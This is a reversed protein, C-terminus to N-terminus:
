DNLIAGLLLGAAFPEFHWHPCHPGHVHGRAIFGLGPFYFGISNYYYHHGNYYRHRYEPHRGYHYDHWYGPGPRNYYRTNDHRRERGSYRPQQHHRDREHRPQNQRNSHRDGGDNRRGSSSDHRGKEGHEGRAVKIVTAQKKVGVPEGRADAAGNAFLLATSIATLLLTNKLYRM